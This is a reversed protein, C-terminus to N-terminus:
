SQESILDIIFDTLPALNDVDPRYVLTLDAEIFPLAARIAKEDGGVKLGYAVWFQEHSGISFDELVFKPGGEKLLRSFLKALSTKGSNNRGVIVTTDGNLVIEVDKLLRFNKIQIKHIQM